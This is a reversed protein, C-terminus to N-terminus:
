EAERGPWERPDADSGEESEGGDEVFPALNPLYQARIREIMEQADAEARVRREVDYGGAATIAEAADWDLERGCCGGKERVFNLWGRWMPDLALTQPNGVVILLSQARTIAVNFRKPDAVFGLTHRMDYALFDTSSRVTSIIIVRREQGQFEEVSGVKIGKAREPLAKLIKLCQAHYPAIIGIDNPTIRLKRNELIDLAYHKVLSVEDINFFSPSSAERQDRGVVGHFVVPFGKRPLSDYALLSHTIVPDGHAQLEGSYFIRNPYELIDPHSRFNKVLKMVTRGKGTHEDYIPMNMLRELYSLKLGLDRALPSRVIPNLQRHDGALVVNTCEDALTKIVVMSMPETAQGAEDLFIHSFHGREFGLAHPIGASICTAVVVRYSRLTKLPPIAFVDNDNYLTYPELAASQQMFTKYPRAFSNLRFLERPSLQSTLRKAILDAASNSPACALIKADPNDKLIQRIAEVLTVTKGTGPPGFMVFPVSGPPRSAIAIIAQLQEPNDMLTRDVLVLDRIQVATPVILSVCDAETPFLLRSPNFDSAVAQHMRRDPLRNLTFRVDVKGGRYASFKPNFRLRVTRGTIQHVCGEYWTGTADRSHHVEIIDGVIVSPRGEGLGPVEIEYGPHQPAIAVNEMNYLALDYEMQKEEVWLLVQFFTPYSNLGLAPLFERIAFKARPGFAAVSIDHPIKYEPLAVKWKPRSWTSPRVVRVLKGPRAHAAGRPVVRVYPAIPRLHEHDEQSGVIACISRTIVFQQGTSTGPALRRFTLEVTDEHQGEYSPHFTVTVTRSTAQRIGKGPGLLAASFKVGYHDGRPSSTLRIAHLVVQGEADTKIVKVDASRPIDPHLRAESPDIIGFDIGGKYSVSVGHKDKEAEALAASFTARQQHSTHRTTHALWVDVHVDHRCVNCNLYGPAAPTGTVGTTPATSPAAAQAVADRHAATRQHRDYLADRHRRGNVHAQYNLNRVVIGCGCRQIDHDSQCGQLDCRGTRVINNCFAM